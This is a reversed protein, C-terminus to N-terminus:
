PEYQPSQQQPGEHKQNAAWLTKLDISETEHPGIVAKEADRWRKAELTFRHWAKAMLAESQSQKGSVARHQADDSVAEEKNREGKSVEGKPDQPEPKEGELGRPIHLQDIQSDTTSRQSQHGLAVAGWKIILSHHCAGKPELQGLSGQDCSCSKKTGVKQSLEKDSIRGEAGDKRFENKPDKYKVPRAKGEADKWVQDAQILRLM